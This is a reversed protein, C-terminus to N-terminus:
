RGRKQPDSQVQPVDKKGIGQSEDGISRQQTRDCLAYPVLTQGNSQGM